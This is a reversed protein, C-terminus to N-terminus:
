LEDELIRFKEVKVKGMPHRIHNYMRCACGILFGCAAGIGTAKFIKSM